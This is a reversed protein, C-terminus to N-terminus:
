SATRRVPELLTPAEQDDEYEREQTILELMAARVRANMTEFRVGFGGETERVVEAGIEIPEEGELAFRLELETGTILLPEAEEILAGSVSINRVMGRGKLTRGFFECTFAVPVRHARRQWRDPMDPRDSM